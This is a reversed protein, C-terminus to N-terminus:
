DAPQRSATITCTADEPADEGFGDLLVGAQDGAQVTVPDATGTARYDRDEASQVTATVVYLGAHDATNEVTAELVFSEGERACRSEPALDTDASTFETPPADAEDDGGCAGVGLALAGAATLLALRRFPTVTM